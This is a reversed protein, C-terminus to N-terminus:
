MIQPDKSLSFMADFDAQDRDEKIDAIANREATHAADSIKVACNIITEYAKLRMTDNQYERTAVSWIGDIAASLKSLIESEAAKLISTKVAAYKARFIRDNLRAYIQSESMNLSEAAARITPTTVLASIIIEDKDEKSM